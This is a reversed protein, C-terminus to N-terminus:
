LFDITGFAPRLVFRRAILGNGIELGKVGPGYEEPWAADQNVYSPTQVRTVLWDVAAEGAASWSCCGALLLQLLRLRQTYGMRM